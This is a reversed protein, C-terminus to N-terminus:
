YYIALNEIQLGPPLVRHSCWSMHFIFHLPNACRGQFCHTGSLTHPELGRDEAMSEHVLHVLLMRYRITRYWCYVPLNRSLSLRSGQFPIRPLVCVPEFGTGEAVIHPHVTDIPIMPSLYPMDSNWTETLLTFAFLQQQLDLIPQLKFLEVQESVSAQLNSSCLILSTTPLQSHVLWSIWEWMKWSHILESMITNFNILMSIRSWVYKLVLSAIGQVEVLKPLHVLYSVPMREFLFPDWYPNLKSYEM